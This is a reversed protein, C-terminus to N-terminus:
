RRIPWEKRNVVYFLLNTIGVFAYIAGGPSTVDGMLYLVSFSVFISGLILSAFPRRDTLSYRGAILGGGGFIAGWATESPILGLMPAYLRPYHGFLDMSPLMAYIGWIVAWGACVNQVTIYKEGRM